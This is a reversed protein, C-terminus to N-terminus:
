HRGMLSVYSGNNKDGGNSYDNYTQNIAQQKKFTIYDSSDSVFKVNCSSSPVGSGDCHSIISGMRGQRGPYTKNIQNSGGCIYNPRGLFDGLNNVARFPTTVRNKGNVTGTAYQTNWSKVLVRRMATQESDKSNTRTQKASYGNFPGGLVATNNMINYVYIINKIV